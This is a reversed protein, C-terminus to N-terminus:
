KIGWITFYGNSSWGSSYAVRSLNIHTDDVYHYMFTIFNQTDYFISAVLCNSATTRNKLLLTPLLQPQMRLNTTELSVGVMILSYNALSDNLALQGTTGKKGLLVFNDFDSKLLANKEVANSTVPNMNDSQVTDVIDTKKVFPTLDINIDPTDILGVAENLQMLQKKIAIISTNISNIDNKNILPVDNM